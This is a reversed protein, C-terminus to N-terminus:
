RRVTSILSDALQPQHALIAAQRIEEDTMDAALEIAHHIGDGNGAGMMTLYWRVAEVRDPLGLVGDRAWCGLAYMAGAHGLAAAKTYAQVAEEDRDAKSLQDGQKAAAEAIGADAAGALLLLMQPFTVYKGGSDINEMALNFMAYPDGSLAAKRYLDVARAKDTRVGQGTAYLYGLSRQATADGQAAAMEFWPRAAKPKHEVELELAGLLSQAVTDGQHAPEILAQKVERIAKRPVSGASKLLSLARSRPDEQESIPM